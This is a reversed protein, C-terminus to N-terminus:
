APEVEARPPKAGGAALAASDSSSSAMLGLRRTTDLWDCAFTPLPERGHGGGVIAGCSADHSRTERQSQSCGAEHSTDPSCRADASRQACLSHDCWDSTPTGIIIDNKPSAGTPYMQIMVTSYGAQMVVCPLGFTVRRAVVRQWLAVVYKRPECVGIVSWLARAREVGHRWTLLHLEQTVM